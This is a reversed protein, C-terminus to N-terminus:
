VTFKEAIAVPPLYIEDVQRFYWEFNKITPSPNLVGGKLATLFTNFGSVLEKGFCGDLPSGEGTKLLSPQPSRTGEPRPQNISIFIQEIM